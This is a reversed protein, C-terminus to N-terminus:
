IFVIMFFFRKNHRTIKASAAQLLLPEFFWVVAAAPVSVSAEANGTKVM